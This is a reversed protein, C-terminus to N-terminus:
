LSRNQHCKAQTWYDLITQMNSTETKTRTTKSKIVTFFIILAMIKPGWLRLGTGGGANRPRRPWYNRWQYVSTLLGFSM